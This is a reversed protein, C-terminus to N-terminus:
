LEDDPYGLHRLIRIPDADYWDTRDLLSQEDATIEYHKLVPVPHGNIKRVVVRFFFRTPPDCMSCSLWGHILGRFQGAFGTERRHVYPHGNICVPTLHVRGDRPGGTEVGPM